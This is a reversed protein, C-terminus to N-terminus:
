QPPALDIKALYLRIGPPFLYAVDELARPKLWLVLASYAVVGILICLILVAVPSVGAVKCAQQACLVIIAM